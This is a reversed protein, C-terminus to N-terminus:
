IVPIKSYRGGGLNALLNERNLKKYDIPCDHQEPIRHINCYINGCRCPYDTLKLKKNCTKGNNKFKCRFSKKKKNKPKPNTKLIIPETTNTESNNNNM